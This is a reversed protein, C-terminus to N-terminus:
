ATQEILGEAQGDHMEGSYIKSILSDRLITLTRNERANHEIRRFLPEAVRTFFNVLSAEPLAFRYSPVGEKGLHLVTTGNAHGVIHDEYDASRMLCYLFPVTVGDRIPRVVLVDLSAVLTSFREDGKVLAARGIVEAAQTVDTRAVILEGPGVVQEPKFGGTFPKLGDVKYGGGREFSGLTVLATTSERLNESAYSKGPTLTAVQGISTVQWGDPVLGIETEVLKGPFSAAVAPGANVATRGALSALVPDYDVFWSKFLAHAIAESTREIQRNLEVKDDLAVLASAIARQESIPPLSILLRRQDRLSLYPAMDTSRKLGELQGRFEPSRAWYRLFGPDLRSPDRSRWYSLHPSYVFPPLGAGVFGTRGTSNGKTTVITDGAKAMKSQLQATLEAAFREVGELDITSETLHAARLFIPGGGRLESLRARYGDGIELVGVDILDQFRARAWSVDTM